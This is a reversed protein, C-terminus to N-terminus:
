TIADRQGHAQTEAVVCCLVAPLSKDIM